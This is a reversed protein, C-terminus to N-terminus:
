HLKINYSFLSWACYIFMLSSIAFAVFNLIYFFRSIKPRKWNMLNTPVFNFEPFRLMVNVPSELSSGCKRCVKADDLNEVGCNKCKMIKNM